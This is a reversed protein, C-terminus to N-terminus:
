SVISLIFKTNQIIKEILPPLTGGGSDKLRSIEYFWYVTYAIELNGFKSWVTCAELINRQQQPNCAIFDVVAVNLKSEVKSAVKLHRANV